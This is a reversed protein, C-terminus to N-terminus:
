GHNQKPIEQEGPLCGFLARRAMDIRESANTESNKALAADLRGFVARYAPHRTLPRAIKGNRTMNM